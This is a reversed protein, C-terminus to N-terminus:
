PMGRTGLFHGRESVDSEDHRVIFVNPFAVPMSSNIVMGDLNYLHVAYRRM